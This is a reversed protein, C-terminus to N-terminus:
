TVPATAAPSLDGDGPRRPRPQDEHQHNGLLRPYPPLLRRHRVRRPGDRVLHARLHLRRGVVAPDTTLKRQVLDALWTDHEDSIATSRNKGPGLGRLRLQRMLREVTCPAVTIGKRNLTLRVKRAGYAGYNAAQARRIEGTLRVDRYMRISLPRRCTAGYTSAAILVRCGRLWKM